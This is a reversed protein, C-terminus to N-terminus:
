ATAPPARPNYSAPFVALDLPSSVAALIARGDHQPIRLTIANPAIFAQAAAQVASCLVCCCGPGENPATQGTGDHHHAAHRHWPTTSCHEHEAPLASRGALGLEVAVLLPLLAQVAGALCALMATWRGAYWAKKARGSTKAVM